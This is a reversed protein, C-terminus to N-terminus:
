ILGRPCGFDDLLTEAASIRSRRASYFFINGEWFEIRESSDSAILWGDWGNIVVLTMLGLLIGIQHIQEDSISLQDRKNYPFPDFYHGPADSLSRTEGLGKRAAVFIEYANPFDNTWHDIWLLRSQNPAHWRNVAEAFLSLQNVVPVLRGGIRIQQSAIEHELTLAARHMPPNATVSFGFQGFLDQLERSTICKM